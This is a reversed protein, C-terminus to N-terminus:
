KGQSPTCSVYVTKGTSGAMEIPTPLTLSGMNQIMGLTAYSSATNSYQASRVNEGNVTKNEIQSATASIAVIDSNLDKNAYFRITTDGKNLYVTAACNAMSPEDWNENAFSVVDSKASEAPGDFAAYVASCSVVLKECNEGAFATSACTLVLVSVIARIM